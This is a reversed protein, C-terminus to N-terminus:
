KKFGLNHFILDQFWSLPDFDSIQFDFLIYISFIATYHMDYTKCVKINENM